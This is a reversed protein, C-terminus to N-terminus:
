TFKRKTVLINGGAILVILGLVVATIGIRTNRLELTKIADDIKLADLEKEREQMELAIEMQAIKRTSEEGYIREKVDDYRNMTEYAEKWKSLRAFNTAMAKLVQPEYYFSQLQTGLELAQNLYVQAEQPRNAKTYVEGLNSTINLVALQNNTTTALNLARNYYEVARQYNGQKFFLNGINNLPDVFPDGLQESLQYSQSYYKLAQEYLQLESHLNGLNNMSGVLRNADGMETFLAYSEEFNNMAQGFDRKMSYITGINSKIAAIGEKNELSDYINLSLLYYELARDLAGYNRYAVGMNNYAAAIGKLDSIENALDLAKKAFSIANVPNANLTARFLENYAKVKAEGEANEMVQFLSDLQGLCIITTICFWVTVLLKIM